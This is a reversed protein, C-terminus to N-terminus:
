KNVLMIYKLGELPPVGFLCDELFGGNVGGTEAALFGDLNGIGVAIM